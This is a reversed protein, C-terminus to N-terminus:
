PKTKKISPRGGGERRIRDMSINGALLDSRGRAVTKVNVGSIRAIREDGGRGLKMSEFGLYLRKQKENLTSLLNQFKEQIVPDEFADRPETPKRSPARKLISNERQQVQQSGVQKSVYLYAGDFEERELRGDAYLKALANHVRVKVLTQLERAFYGSTSVSVLHDLTDLLSGYASFHVQEYTWLGHEDYEAIRNLTYYRGGHSYSTQYDLAILKRFVTMRTPGGLVDRIM